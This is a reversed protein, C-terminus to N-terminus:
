TERHKPPDRLIEGPDAEFIDISRALSKEAIFSLDLGTRTQLAKYRKLLDPDISVHM